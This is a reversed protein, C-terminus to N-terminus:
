KLSIRKVKAEGVSQNTGSVTLILKVTWFRSPVFAM